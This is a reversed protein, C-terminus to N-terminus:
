YILPIGTGFKSTYKNVHAEWQGKTTVDWWTKTAPNFVDPGFKFRPTVNLHQLRPDASVLEKFFTDIREGKFAAQLNPNTKLRIGQKQTFGEEEFRKIADDLHQQLLAADNALQCSLGLPDIWSWVNPAFRYLNEGVELRLPDPCIFSGVFADYYRYGNYHLGTEPDHYQGQLRIRNIQEEVTVEHADGLTTYKASWVLRGSTNFINRPLGNPDTQYYCVMRQHDIVAFPEFAEPTYVFEKFSDDVKEALLAGGDWFYRHERGDTKKTARRGQPDYRYDTTTNDWNQSRLLRDNADWELKLVEKGNRKEILNGAANFHYTVSEYQEVRKWDDLKGEHDEQHQWLNGAPDYLFKQARGDPDVHERVRRMPDHLMREVGYLSDKRLVLEGQQDYDYGCQALLRGYSKVEQNVLRGDVDYRYSRQLSPSLQARLARGIADREIQIANEENIYIDKIRDLQDYEFKVINGLSTERQIRNGNLDYTNKIKFNGQHEEILRGDPDFTRYICIDQNATAILHGNADYVFTESHGSPLLRKTLRGLFDNTYTVVNGLANKKSQLSGTSDYEYQLRQGWYDTEECIRGLPDRRLLYKQGKQNTIGILQEETDRHYTVTSGDPLHKKSINDLAQYELRIEFGKEDRYIVLNGEGDYACKIQAGSPSVRSLLKSNPDYQYSTKNGQPDIKNLLNGLPDVRFHTAFGLADIVTVINGYQNWRLQTVAGRPNRIESLCGREDYQYDTTAGLPSIQKIQLGRSDWAQRWTNGNPDSFSTIKDNEDFTARVAAGDPRILKILNGHADYHYETRRSGPEVVAATRGYDDYEYFTIEGLPDASEIPQGCDNLQVVHSHNLSNTITVQNNNRHYVFHYDFIGNDGWSHIAQGDSVLRDYEYYFSLGNRNTHRVMCHNVYAFRYPADLPDFVTCLDVDADYEYRVLLRPEPNDPHCLWMAAIRGGRSQVRITVGVTSVIERLDETERRFYLSNGCLDTISEVLTERQGVSFAPFQFIRGDKRQVTLWHASRRLRDGSVPDRLTGEEPIEEFCTGGFSGDHFTVTGDEELALRADAVTEWGTGCVGRRTSGSRYNRRWEIPLPWPVSFDEQQVLVEGTAIYVPEGFILCKMRQIFKSNKLRSWVSKALKGLGKFLGKMLAGLAMSTFSPLPIGGILVNGSATIPFGIFLGVPPDKPSPSSFICHKTLDVGVRAARAGELWVSSSGLFIEYMPFFGGCWIGIGMDGCRAAPLGNITIRSAGSLIPIPLIPGVSPLPIFPFHTPHSHPLGVALNLVHLAPLAPFPIFSLLASLGQEITTLLGLAMGLHQLIGQPTNDDKKLHFLHALQDGLEQVQHVAADKAGTFTSSYERQGAAQALGHLTDSVSSDGSAARQRLGDLTRHMVNMPSPRPEQQAAYQAARNVTTGTVSVTSSLFDTM